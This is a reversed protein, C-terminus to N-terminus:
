RRRLHEEAVDRWTRERARVGHVTVGRNILVAVDHVECAELGLKTLALLGHLPSLDEVPTGALELIALKGLGALPRLDRVRTYGLRLRELAVLGAIPQLDSLGTCGSLNLERLAALRRLPELRVVESSRLDLRELRTLEALADAHPWGADGLDLERLEVLGALGALPEFGLQEIQAHASVELTQLRTFGALSRLSGQCRRLALARLHPLAALTALDEDLSIGELSLETLSELGALTALAGRDGRPAEHSALGRIVLAEIAREALLGAVRALSRPGVLVVRRLLASTPLELLSALTSAHARAIVVEIAFGRTWVIELGADALPGLWRRHEGDFLERAQHELLAREFPRECARARQELAILEGRRDGLEALLDGFVAWAQEDAPDRRLVAELQGRPM